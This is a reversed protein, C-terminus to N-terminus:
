HAVLEDGEGGSPRLWGVAGAVEAEDDVVALRGPARELGRARLDEGAAAEVESIGPAVMDLDHLVVLDLERLRLVDQAAHAEGQALGLAREGLQARLPDLGELRDDASAGGGM